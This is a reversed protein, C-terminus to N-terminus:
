HSEEEQDTENKEDQTASPDSRRFIDALWKPGNKQLKDLRRDLWRWRKRLWRVFAPAVTALLLFGLIVIVFGFPTPAVMVLAGVVILAFAFLALALRFLIMM